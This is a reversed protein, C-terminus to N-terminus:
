TTSHKTGGCLVEYKGGWSTATKRLKLLQMWVCALAVRARETRSPDCPPALGFPCSACDRVLRSCSTPTVAVVNKRSATAFSVSSCAVPSKNAFCISGSGAGSSRTSHVVASADSSSSSAGMGSAGAGGSGTSISMGGIAAHPGGIDLESRHMASRRTYPEPGRQAGGFFNGGPDYGPTERQQRVYRNHRTDQGREHKWTRVM